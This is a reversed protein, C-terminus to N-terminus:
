VSQEDERCAACGSLDVKLAHSLIEDALNELRDVFEIDEEAEYTLQKLTAASKTLCWDLESSPLYKAQYERRLEQAQRAVVQYFLKEDPDAAVKASRKAHRRVHELEALTAIKDTLNLSDHNM